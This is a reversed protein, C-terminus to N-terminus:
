SKQTLKIKDKVQQLKPDKEKFEQLARKWHYLAEPTRELHNYVDALHDSICPDDPRLQYAQELTTLAEHINGKKFYIWGLTDLITGDSPRLSAAKEAYNLAQDMNNNHESWTYAVYNLLYPDETNLSLAEELDREQKQPNQLKEFVHARQFLIHSHEKADLNNLALTLVSVSEEFKNQKLLLESNQYYPAPWSPYNKNLSQLLATAKEHANFRGLIGAQRQQSLAYYPSNEPIEKFLILAKEEQKLSMLVNALIYNKYVSQPMLYHALQALILATELNGHNQMEGAFELFIESSYDALNKKPSIKSSPALFLPDHHEKLINEIQFYQFQYSAIMELMRSPAEDKLQIIFNFHTKAKDGLGLFELILGTHFRYRPNLNGQSEAYPLLTKLAKQGRGSFVFLWAEFFPAMPQFAQFSSLLKMNKFASTYNQTKLDKAFLMLLSTFDFSHKNKMTEALPVAEEVRSLMILTQCYASLFTTDNPAKRLGEKFFRAATEIDGHTLAYRGELYPGLAHPAADSQALRNLFREIFSSEDNCSAIFLTLCLVFFKVFFRM